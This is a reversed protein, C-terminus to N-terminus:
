EAEILHRYDRKILRVYHQWQSDLRDWARLTVGRDKIVAVLDITQKLTDIVKESIRAM